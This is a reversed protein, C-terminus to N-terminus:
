SPSRRSGIYCMEVKLSTLTGVMLESHQLDRRLQESEEQARELTEQLEDKHKALSALQSQLSQIEEKHQDRLTRLAM